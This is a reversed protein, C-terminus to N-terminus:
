SRFAPGPSRRQCPVLSVTLVLTLTRYSCRPPNRCNRYVVLVWSERNVIQPVLLEEQLIPCVAVRRGCLFRSGCSRCEFSQVTIGIVRFRIDRRELCGAEPFKCIEVTAFPRDPGIDGPGRHNWYPQQADTVLNRAQNHTPRESRFRVAAEFWQM